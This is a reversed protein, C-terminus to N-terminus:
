KEKERRSYLFSIHVSHYVSEGLPRQRIKEAEKYHARYWMNQMETHYKPTFTNSELITYVEKFTERHFAVAAKARLIVESARSVETHLPLISLFRGLREM